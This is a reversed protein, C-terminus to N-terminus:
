TELRTGELREFEALDIRQFQVTDGVQLPFYGDEVNVMELPTRGIINWGGPRLLPYLGTQRGTLGVSGPEVRMRPSALRPVGELQKPLYGLYPFGPSFGIAYVSFPQSTHLDIVRDLPLGTHHAVRDLDLQL